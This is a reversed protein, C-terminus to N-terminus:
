RGLLRALFGRPQPLPHQKLYDFDTEVSDLDDMVQGHEDVVHDDNSNFIHAVLLDQKMLWGTAQKRARVDALARSYSDDRRNQAILADLERQARKWQDFEQTTASSVRRGLQKLGDEYTLRLDAQAM